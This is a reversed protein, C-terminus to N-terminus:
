RVLEKVAVESEAEKLWRLERRRMRRRADPTDDDEDALHDCGHAIYLALERAPTWRSAGAGRRRGLRRGSVVAREINVIVEGNWGPTDGPAPPYAISIVDTVDDRGLVDRNVRRIGDDNM